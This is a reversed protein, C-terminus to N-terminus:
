SSKTMTALRKTGVLAGAGKRSTEKTKLIFINPDSDHDEGEYGLIENGNVGGYKGHTKNKFRFNM